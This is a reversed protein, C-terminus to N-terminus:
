PASTQKRPQTSEVSVTFKVFDVVRRDRDGSAKMEFSLISAGPAKEITESTQLILPWDSTSASALVLTANLLTYGERLERSAPLATWTKGLLGVLHDWAGPPGLGARISNIRERLANLDDTECSSLATVRSNLDAERSADQVEWENRGLGWRIRLATAMTLMLMGAVFGVARVKSYSVGRIM